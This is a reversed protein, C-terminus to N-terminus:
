SEGIFCCCHEFADVLSMVGRFMAAGNANGIAMIATLEHRDYLKQKPSKAVLYVAAMRLM